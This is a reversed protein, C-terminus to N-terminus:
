GGGEEDRPHHHSSVTWGDRWRYLALLTNVSYGIHAPVMHLIEFLMSYLRHAQPDTGFEVAQLLTEVTM